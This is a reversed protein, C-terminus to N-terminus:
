GGLISRANKAYHEILSKYDGPGIFHIRSLALRCVNEQKTKTSFGMVALTEKLADVVDNHDQIDCYISRCSWVSGQERNGLGVSHILNLSNDYSCEMLKSAATVAEEVKSYLGTKICGDDYQVVCWSGKFRAPFYVRTDTERLCSSPIWVVRTKDDSLIARQGRKYNLHTCDFRNGVGPFYDM